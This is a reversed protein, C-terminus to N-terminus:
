WSMIHNPSHKANADNSYLRRFKKTPTPSQFTSVTLDAQQHSLLSNPSILSKTFSPLIIPKTLHVNSVVNTQQQKEPESPVPSPTDTKNVGGEEEDLSSSSHDHVVHVQLREIPDLHSFGTDVQDDPPEQKTTLKAENIADDHM